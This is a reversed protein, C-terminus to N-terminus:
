KGLAAQGGRRGNRAVGAVEACTVGLGITVMMELLTVKALVNIVQDITM